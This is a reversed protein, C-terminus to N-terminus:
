AAKKRLGAVLGLAGARQQAEGGKFGLYSLVVGSILNFISGGQSTSLAPVASPAVTGIAGLVTQIM